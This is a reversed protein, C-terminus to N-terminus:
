RRSAENRKELFALWSTFELVTLERVEAVSKHLHTGVVHYELM